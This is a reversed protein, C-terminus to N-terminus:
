SISEQKGSGESMQVNLLSGPCYYRFHKIVHQCVPKAKEHINIQKQFPITTEVIYHFNSDKCSSLYILNQSYCSLDETSM